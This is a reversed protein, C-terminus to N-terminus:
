VGVLEYSEGSYRYTEDLTALVGLSTNHVVVKPTVEARAYLEAPEGPFDISDSKVNGAFVVPPGDGTTELYAYRGAAAGDERVFASTKPDDHDAAVSDLPHVEDAQIKGDLPRVISTQPFVRFLARKSVTQTREADKWIGLQSPDCNLTSLDAVHKWGSAEGKDRQVLYGQDEVVVAPEGGIQTPAMLWQKQAPLTFQGAGKLNISTMQTQM